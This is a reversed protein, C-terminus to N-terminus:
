QRGYPAATDREGTEEADPFFSRERGIFFRPNGYRFHISLTVTGHIVGKMEIELNKLIDAPIRASKFAAESTSGERAIRGGIYSELDELTFRVANGIRRCKLQGSAVARSVTSYSVSLLRAAAKIDYLM